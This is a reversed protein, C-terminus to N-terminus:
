NSIHLFFYENMMFWSCYPTEMKRFYNRQHQYWNLLFSHFAKSKAEFNQSFFLFTYDVRQDSQYTM